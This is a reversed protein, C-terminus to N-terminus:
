GVVGVMGCIRDRLGNTPGVASSAAAQGEAKTTRQGKGGKPVPPAPASPELYGISALVREVQLASMLRSRNLFGELSPVSLLDLLNNSGDVSILDMWVLLM